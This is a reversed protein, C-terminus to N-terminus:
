GRKKVFMAVGIIAVVAVVAVVAALLTMDLGASAAKGTVAFTSFGSTTATYYKYTSDETGTAATTLKSWQGGSYRMLAVTTSDINNSSLWSKSVKFEVTANEVSVSTAATPTVSLDLYHSVIIGSEVTTPDTVTSPKASLQEAQVSVSSAAASTTVSISKVPQTTEFNVTMSTASTVAISSVGNEAVSITEGVSSSINSVSVAAPTTTTVAGTNETLTINIVELSYTCGPGAYRYYVLFTYYGSYTASFIACSQGEAILAENNDFVEVYLNEDSPTLDIRATQGSSIYVKYYDFPDTADVHGTGSAPFNILVANSITDGADGGSGMDDQVTAASPVAHILSFVLALCLAFSAIAGKVGIRRGYYCVLPATKVM